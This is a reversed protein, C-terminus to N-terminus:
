FIKRSAPFLMLLSFREHMPLEVLTVFGRLPPAATAVNYYYHFLPLWLPLLSLQRSFNMKWGGIKKKSLLSNICASTWNSVDINRTQISLPVHIKFFKIRM